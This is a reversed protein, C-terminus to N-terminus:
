KCITLKTKCRLASISNPTTFIRKEMLMVIKIGRAITLSEKLPPTQQFILKIDENIRNSVVTIVEGCVWQLQKRMAYIATEMANQVGM